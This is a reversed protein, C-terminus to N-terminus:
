CRKRQGTRSSIFFHEALLIAQMLTLALKWFRGMMKFSGFADACHIPQRGRRDAIMINAGAERLLALAEADGLTAAWSLPTRGLDDQVDIDTDDLQLQEGLSGPSLRCVIKHLRTFQLSEDIAPFLGTSLATAMDCSSDRIAFQFASSAPSLGNCDKQLPDAGSQVLLKCIAYANHNVAYHLVSYGDTDIDYPSARGTSLLHRVDDLRSM